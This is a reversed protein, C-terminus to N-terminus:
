AVKAQLEKIKNLTEQIKIYHIIKKYNDNPYVLMEISNFIFIIVTSNITANNIAHRISDLISKEKAQIKIPTITKM